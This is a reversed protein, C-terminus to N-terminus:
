GITGVSNAKTADYSERQLTQLRMGLAFTPLLICDIHTYGLQKAATVRNTGGYVCNLVPKNPLLRGGSSGIREYQMVLDERPGRVVIVPNALGEQEISKSIEDAFVPVDSVPRHLESIAMCRIEFATIALDKISLYSAHNRLRLKSM